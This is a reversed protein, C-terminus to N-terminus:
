NECDYIYKKYKKCSKLGNDARNFLVGQYYNCINIKLALNYNQIILYWCYSMHKFTFTNPILIRLCNRTVRTLYDSVNTM